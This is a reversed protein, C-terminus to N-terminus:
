HRLRLVELAEKNPCFVPVCPTAAAVSLWKMCAPKQECTQCRDVLRALEPRTLWGDVVASTLNVGLSRAMGRTLGWALPADSYGLM